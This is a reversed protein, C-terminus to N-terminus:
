SPTASTSSASGASDVSRYVEEYTDCAGEEDDEYEYALEDDGGSYRAHTGDVVPADEDIANARAARIAAGSATADADVSDDLAAVEEVAGGDHEGEMPAVPAVEGSRAGEV